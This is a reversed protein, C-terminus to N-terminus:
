RAALDAAMTNAEAQAQELTVGHNLRGFVRLSRYRRGVLFPGDMQLPAWMEVDDAPPFNPPTIGVVEYARGDLTVERGVIGPDGGFKRQWLRYSFIVEWEHGLWQEDSTFGRGLIPLIGLTEFYGPTVRIGSISEGEGAGSLIWLGQAYAAIKDFSHNHDQFDVFDPGAIGTVGQGSHPAVGAIFVLRDSEPYPLPEWLIAHVLTFIATSAGIGLGLVIVAALTFAPNRFLMRFAYNWDSM